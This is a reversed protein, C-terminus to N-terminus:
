RGITELHPGIHKPTVDDASAAGFARWQDDSLARLLTKLDARASAAQARLTDAPTDREETRIRANIEDETGEIHQPPKGDLVLRLDDVTQRTWRAFHAYVDRGAWDTSPGLPADISADLAATLEDWLEDGRRLLAERDDSEIM